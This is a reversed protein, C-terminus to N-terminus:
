LQAFLTKVLSFSVDKSILCFNQKQSEALKEESNHIHYSFITKSSM